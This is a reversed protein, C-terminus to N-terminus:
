PTGISVLWQIFVVAEVVFSFGSRIPARLKDPCNSQRRKARPAMPIAHVTAITRERDERADEIVDIQVRLLQNIRIEVFM